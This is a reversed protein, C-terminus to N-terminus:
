KPSQEDRSEPRSTIIIKHILRNVLERTPAPAPLREDGVRAAVRTAGVGRELSDLATEITEAHQTEIAMSLGELLQQVDTWDAGPLRARELMRLTDVVDRAQDAAMNM